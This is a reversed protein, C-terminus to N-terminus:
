PKTSSLVSVSVTKELLSFGADSFKEAFVAPHVQFRVPFEPTGVNQAHGIRDQPVILAKARVCLPLQAQQEQGPVPLIHCSQPVHDMHLMEESRHGGIDGLDGRLDESEGRGLGSRSGCSYRQSLRPFRSSTLGSEKKPEM